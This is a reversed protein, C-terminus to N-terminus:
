WSNIFCYFAMFLRPEKGLYERSNRHGSFLSTMQIIVFEDFTQKNNIINGSRIIKNIFKELIM